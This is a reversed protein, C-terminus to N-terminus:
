EEEKKLELGLSHLKAIVEELSKKGLNRVKIMDDETRNTLDDVTNIGARKLCNFSRVSMDLEEIAMELVKEKKTEEREIMIEAKKAEDIIFKNDIFKTWGRIADPVQSMQGYYDYETGIPVSQYGIIYGDANLALKYYNLKM